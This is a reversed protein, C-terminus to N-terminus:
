PLQADMLRKTSAVGTNVAARRGAMVLAKAQEVIRDLQRLVINTDKTLDIQAIQEAIWRDMGNVTAQIRMKERRLQVISAETLPM